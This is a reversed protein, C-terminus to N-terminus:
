DDQDTDARGPQARDAYAQLLAPTLRPLAVTEDDSDPQRAAPTFMVTPPAPAPSQPPAPRAPRTHRRGTPRPLDTLESRHRAPGPHVSPVAPVRGRWPASHPARRTPPVVVAGLPQVGIRRLQAVADAVEALQARHEEVVLLAADADAALTQADASACTPPAEVVVYGAQRTLAAIIRRVAPSQLGGSAATSRDVALHRLGATGPRRRLAERMPARGTLVDSLGPGRTDAGGAGVLIVDEGARSLSAALHHAVPAAADGHSVSAVVIVQGTSDLAALVENRLRDFARGSPDGPPPPSGAPPLGPGLVALVPVGGSRQVDAPRRVRRSLRDALVAAAVGLALGLAGGSALVVQAPPAGLRTARGAETIVTGAAVTATSLENLTEALADLQNTLTTQRRELEAAAPSGPLTVALREAVEALEGDLVGIRDEVTERQVALDARAQEERHALYADAFAAAGLRAAEPHAAAFRIELVATNPPVAVTVHAALDEPALAAALREAAGAAVTTSRVLQAETEPNLTTGADADPGVPHVLLTTASQWVPEQGRLWGGAAAVGLLGTLAILWWRYRLPGLAPLEPSPPSTADM